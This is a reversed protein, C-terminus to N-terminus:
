RRWPADMTARRQRLISERGWSGQWRARRGYMRHLRAMDTLNDESLHPWIDHWVVGWASGVPWRITLADDHHLRVRSGYESVFWAGVTDLVRDSVEVVDVYPTEPHDLLAGIVCGLGLGNVLAPAEPFHHHSLVPGYHDRREADTDSMWLQNDMILRTYEGPRTGRRYKVAEFYNGLDSEGVAFREVSLRGDLSRMEPVRCRLRDDITKIRLTM